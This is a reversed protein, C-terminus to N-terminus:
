LAIQANADGQGAALRFLRVAEWEDAWVGRGAAFLSGLKAQAPAFGDSASERYLAVAENLRSEKEAQEGLQFKEQPSRGSNSVATSACSRQTSDPVISTTVRDPGACGVLVFMTVLALETKM